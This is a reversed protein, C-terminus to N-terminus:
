LLCGSIFFRNLWASVSYSELIEKDISVFPRELFEKLGDLIDPKSYDIIFINDKNYFDRGKIKKNNTILKKHLFLSELERMTMGYEDDYNIDLIAKSQMDDILVDKYPIPKVYISDPKQIKFNVCLIKNSFGSKDLSKKIELIQNIRGKDAGIFFVDQVIKYTDQSLLETPPLAFFIKNLKLNYKKCDGPDFSFIDWKTKKKFYEIQKEKNSNIINWYYVVLRKNSFYHWLYDCFYYDISSDFVIFLSMKSLVTIDVDWFLKSFFGIYINLRRCIKIFFKFHSKVETSIVKCGASLLCDRGVSYPSLERFIAINDVPM